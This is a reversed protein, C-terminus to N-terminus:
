AVCTNVCFFLCSLWRVWINNLNYWAGSSGISVARVTGLNAVDSVFLRMWGGAGRNSDIHLEM